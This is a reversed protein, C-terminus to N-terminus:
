LAENLKNIRIDLYYLAKNLELKRKELAERSFDNQYRLKEEENSFKLIKLRKTFSYTEKLDILEEIIYSFNLVLYKYEKENPDDVSVSELKKLRKDLSKKIDVLTKMNPMKNLKKKNM